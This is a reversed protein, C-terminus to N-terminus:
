VRMQIEKVFPEDSEQLEGREAQRMLRWIHPGLLDLETSVYQEGGFEKITDQQAQLIEVDQQFIRMAAPELVPKVMWGPIRLNFQITAYLLTKFDGIPTMLSTVIIHNETGIKYEVQAVSPLFFRDWHQVIGGSPSLMRGVVGDPRPEGLYECEVHDSYRTVRATIENTTGAGRFLGKHLYATHPVDLANEAVGHISGPAEVSRDVRTYGADLQPLQFPEREPEVDPTAYVWIYGDQERVPFNAVNRGKADKEELLGPVKTCDGSTNFCWGHYKCELAGQKTVRGLSLPVNRHPCRDLLVGPHGAKDRFLVMPIGLITRQIPKKGLESSACGVYWWANLNAVSIHGKTEPPVLKEDLNSM